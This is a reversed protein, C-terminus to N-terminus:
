RPYVHLHGRLKTYNRRQKKSLKATLGAYWLGKSEKWRSNIRGGTVVVLLYTRSEIEPLIIIVEGYRTEAVLNPHCFALDKRVTKVKYFVRCNSITPFNAICTRKNKASLILSGPKTERPCM